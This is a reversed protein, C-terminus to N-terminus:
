CGDQGNTVSLQSSSTTLISESKFDHCMICLGKTLWLPLLGEDSMLIKIRSLSSTIISICQRM